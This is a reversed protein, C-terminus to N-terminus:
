KGAPATAAKAQEQAIKAKKEAKPMALWKKQDATLIADCIPAAVPRLRKFDIEKQGDVVADASAEFMEMAKKEQEASLTVDGLASAEIAMAAIAKKQQEATLLAMAKVYYETNIKAVEGRLRAREAQKAKADSPRGADADAKMGKRLQEITDMQTKAAAERAKFIEGLKTQTVKDLGAARVWLGYVPGANVDESGQKDHTATGKDAGDEGHVFNAGPSCVCLGMGLVMLACSVKFGMIREMTACGKWGVFCEFDGGTLGWERPGRGWGSLEGMGPLSRENEGQM